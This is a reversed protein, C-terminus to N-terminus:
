EQFDNLWGAIIRRVVCSVTRNENRAILKLRGYDTPNIRLTLFRSNTTINM